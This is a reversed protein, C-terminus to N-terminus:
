MITLELLKGLCRLFVLMLTCFPWGGADEWAHWGAVWGAGDVVERGEGRVGRGFFGHVCLRGHFGRRGGPLLRAAGARLLERGERPPLAPHPARAPPHRLAGLRAVAARRNRAM